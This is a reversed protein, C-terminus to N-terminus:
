SLESEYLWEIRRVKDDDFYAVRYSKGEADVTLSTVVGSTDIATIRVTQGIAFRFSVINQGVHRGTMAETAKNM